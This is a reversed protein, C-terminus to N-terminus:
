MYRKTHLLMDWGIIVHRIAEILALIGFLMGIVLAAAVAALSRWNTFASTPIPKNMHPMMPASALMGDFAVAIDKAFVDLSQVRQQLVVDTELARTIMEALATDIEQDLYGTLEDDAFLRLTTKQNRGKTHEYMWKRYERWLM